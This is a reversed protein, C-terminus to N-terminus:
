YGAVTAGFEIAGISGRLSQYSYKNSFKSRGSSIKKSIRFFLSSGLEAPSTKKSPFLFM